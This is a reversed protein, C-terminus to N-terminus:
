LCSRTAPASAPLRRRVRCGSSRPPPCRTCGGSSLSPGLVGEAGRSGQSRRGSPFRRCPPLPTPLAAFSEGSRCSEARARRLAIGRARFDAARAARQRDARSNSRRLARRVSPSPDHSTSRAAAGRDPPPCERPAASCRRCSAVAVLRLKRQSGTERLFELMPTPDVSALWREETM